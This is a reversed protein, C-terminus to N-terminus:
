AARVCDRDERKARYLASDAEELISLATSGAKVETVGISLTLPMEGARVGQMALRLKEMAALAKDLGTQRLVLVFEDGGFRFALDSRRLTKRVTAAVQRLVEDGIAHGLTDNVQKFHDIDLVVVSLPAGHRVALLVERELLRDLM